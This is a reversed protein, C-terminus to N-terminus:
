MKLSKKKGREASAKRIKKFLHSIGGAKRTDDYVAM